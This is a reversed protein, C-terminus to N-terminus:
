QSQYEEYIPSLYESLVELNIELITSVFNFSNPGFIGQFTVEPSSLLSRRNNRLAQM